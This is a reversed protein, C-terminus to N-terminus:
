KNKSYRFASSNGERYLGQHLTKSKNYDVNERENPKVSSRKSSM